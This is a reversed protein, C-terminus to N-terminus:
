TFSGTIMQTTGVHFLVFMGSACISNRFAEQNPLGAAACLCSLADLWLCLLVHAPEAVTGGAGLYALWFCLVNCSPTSCFCQATEGEDDEDIARASQLGPGAQAERLREVRLRKAQFFDLLV